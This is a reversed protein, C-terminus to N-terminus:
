EANDVLMGGVITKHNFWDWLAELDETELDYIANIIDQVEQANKAQIIAM